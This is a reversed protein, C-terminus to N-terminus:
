ASSIPLSFFTALHASSWIEIFSFASGITGDGFRIIGQCNIRNSHSVQKAARLERSLNTLQHENEREPVPVIKM